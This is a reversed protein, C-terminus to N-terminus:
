CELIKRCERLIGQTKDRWEAELRRFPGVALLFMGFATWFVLRDEDLRDASAEEYAIKFRNELDAYDALRGQLHLLRLHACFNGIDSASDGRHSRDFDIFAVSDDQLLIQGHHLDGHVFGHKGPEESLKFEKLSELIAEAERASEPSIHNLTETTSRINDFHSDIDRVNLNLGESRHLAVLAKATRTVADLRDAGGLSRLLPDGDITEMIMLRRDDLYTIPRAIRYPGNQGAIRYLNEQLTYVDAGRDDGYLRIYVSVNERVNTRRHIARTTARLVVRREPKYRAVKLRLKRDSIRWDEEPYRDYHKYLIRQIKKPNSLVRLGDIILDNPFLYLIAKHDPLIIVPDIDLTEAWRHVRSKEVANQYNDDIYIKTYLLFQTSGKFIERSCQLAYAIICSTAPKYRIYSIECREIEGLADGLREKLLNRVADSDLMPSLGPLMEDRPIDRDHDQGANHLGIKM